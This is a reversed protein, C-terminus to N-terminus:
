NRLRELLTSAKAHWDQDKTLLAFDFLLRAEEFPDNVKRIERQASDFDREVAYLAARTMPTDALTVAQRAVDASDRLRALKSLAFAERDTRHGARAVSSASQFADAAESLKDNLACIDGRFLHFEALQFYHADASPTGNTVQQLLEMGMDLNNQADQWLGLRLEVEVLNSRFMILSPKSTAIRPSSLAKQYAERAERFNGQEFRIAGLNNYVAHAIVAEGIPQIRELAKEYHQEAEILEGLKWSLLGLNAHTRAANSLNGLRERISLTEEFFDRAEPKVQDTLVLGLNQLTDGVKELDGLARRIELAQRLYTEAAGLDQELWKALGLNHLANGREALAELSEKGELMDLAKHALQTTASADRFYTGLLTARANLLGAKSVPDLASFLLDAQDLNRQADDLQMLREHTRARKALTSARAAPTTSRELARDYWLTGAATDGRLSQTAAARTFVDTIDIMLDSDLTQTGDVLAQWYHQAALEPKNRRAQAARLHLLQWREPTIANRAVGLTLDHNFHIRTDGRRLVRTTRLASLTDVVTEYSLQTVTKLELLTAGEGLVACAELVSKAQPSHLAELRYRILEGVSPPITSGDHDPRTYHAELMELLYLPNGGSQLQLWDPDSDNAGLRMALEAITQHSLPPVDLSIGIHERGILEGLRSLDTSAGLETDRQTVILILGRPPPKRLLELILGFSPPDIWQLDDLFLLTPRLEDSLLWRVGLLLLREDESPADGENDLLDPVFRAIAARLEGPMDELQTRRSRVLQRVVLDFTRWAPTLRESFGEAHLYARRKDDLTQIWRRALETKGAGPEGILQVVWVRGELSRPVAASLDRLLEERGLFPVTAEQVPEPFLEELLAKAAATEESVSMACAVEIDASPRGGLEHLCALLERHAARARDSQNLATCVLMRYLMLQEQPDGTEPAAAQLFSLAAQWSRQKLQQVALRASLDRRLAHFRTRRTELWDQFNTEFRADWNPDPFDLFPQALAQWARLWDGPHESTADTLASDTDSVAPTHLHLQRTTADSVFPDYGLGARIQNLATSLNGLASPKDAWLWQAILDRTFRTERQTESLLALVLLPKRGLEIREQCVSVRPLGLLKLSLSTM